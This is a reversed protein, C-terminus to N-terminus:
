DSWRPKPLDRPRKGKPKALGTEGTKRPANQVCPRVLTAAIEWNPSTTRCEPRQSNWLQASRRSTDCHLRPSAFIGHKGSAGTTTLMLGLM